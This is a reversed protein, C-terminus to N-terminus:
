PTKLLVLAVQLLVVFVLQFFFRKLRILMYKKKKKLHSVNFFFFLIKAEAEQIILFSGCRTCFIQIRLSFLALFVVTNRFPFFFHVEDVGRGMAWGISPLLLHPFYYTELHLMNMNRGVIFHSGFRPYM